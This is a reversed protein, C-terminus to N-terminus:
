HKLSYTRRKWASYSCQCGQSALLKSDCTCPPEAESVASSYAPDIPPATLEWSGYHLYDGISAPQSNNLWLERCRRVVSPVFQSPVPPLKQRDWMIKILAIGGANGGVITGTQLLYHTNIVRDGVFLTFGDAFVYLPQPIVTNSM